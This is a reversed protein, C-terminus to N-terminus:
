VMPKSIRNLWGTGPKPGDFTSNQAASSTRTRQVAAPAPPVRAAGGGTAVSAAGTGGGEAGGGGLLPAVEFLKGEADAAAIDEPPVLTANYIAGSQKDQSVYPLIGYDSLADANKIVTNLMEENQQAAASDFGVAAPKGRLLDQILPIRLVEKPLPADKSKAAAKTKKM